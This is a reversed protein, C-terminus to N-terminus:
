GRRKWDQVREGDIWCALFEIFMLPGLVPGRVFVNGGREPDGPQTAIAALVGGVVPWALCVVLNLVVDM